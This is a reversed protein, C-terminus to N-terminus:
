IYNRTFCCSICNCYCRTTNLIFTNWLETIWVRHSNWLKCLWSWYVTKLLIYCIRNLFWRIAVLTKIEYCKVWILSNNRPWARLLSTFKSYYNFSCNKVIKNIFLITYRKQKFNFVTKSCCISDRKCWTLYNWLSNSLKTKTSWLYNWLKCNSATDVAILCINNIRCCYCGITSKINCKYLKVCFSSCNKPWTRLYYTM